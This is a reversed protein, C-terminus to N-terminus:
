ARAQAGPHAGTFKGRLKGLESFIFLANHMCKGGTRRPKHLPHRAISPFLPALYLGSKGRMKWSFYSYKDKAISFFLPPQYASSVRQDGLRPAAFNIHLTCRIRVWDKTVLDRVDNRARETAAGHADGTGGAAEDGIRSEDLTHGNESRRVLLRERFFHPSRDHQLLSKQRAEFLKKAQSKERSIRIATVGSRAREYHEHALNVAVERHTTPVAPFIQRLDRTGRPREQFRRKM